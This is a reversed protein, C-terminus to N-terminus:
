ERRDTQSEGGAIIENMILELENRDNIEQLVCNFSRHFRAKANIFYTGHAAPAALELAPLQARLNKGYARVDDLLERSIRTFRLENNSEM